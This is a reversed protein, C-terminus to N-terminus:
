ELSHFESILVKENIPHIPNSISVAENKGLAWNESGM